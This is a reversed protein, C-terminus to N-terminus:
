HPDLYDMTKRIERLQENLEDVKVKYYAHFWGPDTEDHSDLHNALAIKEAAIASLQGVLKPVSERIRKIENQDHRNFAGKVWTSVEKVLEVFDLSARIEVDIGASYIESSFTIVSVFLILILKKM